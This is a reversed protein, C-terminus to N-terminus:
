QSSWHIATIRWGASSRVLVVLEAGRSDLARGRYEGTTRSTSSVWAADGRVSVRRDAIERQVAQAFAVDAALHHARYEARTERGGSELIIADDALLALAAASDASALAAHFQEVVAVVATSDSAQAALRAPAFCGLALCLIWRTIM